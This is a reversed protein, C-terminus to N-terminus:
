NTAEVKTFNQESKNELYASYLAQTIAGLIYTTIVAYIMIYGSSFPLCHDLAINLALNIAFFGIAFPKAFNPSFLYTSALLKPIAANIVAHIEQKQLNNETSAIRDAAKSIADIFICHYTQYIKEALPIQYLTYALYTGQTLLTTLTSTGVSFPTTPLFTVTTGVAIFSMLLKIPTVKIQPVLKIAEEYNQVNAWIGGRSACNSQFAAAFTTEFLTSKITLSIDM